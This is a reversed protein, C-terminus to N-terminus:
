PSQSRPILKSTQALDSSIPMEWAAQSSTVVMRTVSVRSVIRATTAVMLEQDALSSAVPAHTNAEWIDTETCCSGYKGSGFNLDTKSPKWDEINAEGNIFKMGHPCQADTALALNPALTVLNSRAVM